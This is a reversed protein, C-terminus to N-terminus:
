IHRSLLAIALLVSTAVLLKLSGEWTQLLVERSWQGPPEFEVRASSTRRRVFRAPNSLSRQILSVGTAVGALLAAAVSMSQAQAWYGVVVPFAGWAIAFGVDTHLLPILELPYATALFVGAAAWALVWPSIVYAGVVGAAVAVAMGGLGILWLYRDTLGTRLPRDKVEDFAHSGVGLGAAFAVLTGTLRTWDIDSALAAGMVVFSLHLVTYPWHLLALFDRAPSGPRAYFSPGSFTL